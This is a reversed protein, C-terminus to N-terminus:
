DIPGVTTGPYYTGLITRFDQGARARGIAGAQCMGVGHGNGGGYLTLSEVGSAGVVADISFYTSYLLEGSPLRLAARVENGRLAWQGRDTEIAMTAVRRGPTVDNVTVARIAGVGAPGGPLSRLYRAVSERLQVGTFTRTWRFKPAGDCYFRDTGPIQDSVRQLYPEGGSRWVDQPEATSGGCTSHYPANVVHGDYLLVLGATADVAQNGVSTEASAGGYVQDQVTASMDYSRNTGALHMVAYSRATVAQAEVAAVDGLAATGIELPVVGRLYDDMRLRNVVLLAGDAVSILLEGRWRKGNFTITGRETAPRVVIPSDRLPVPRSDEHRASVVHGDSELLWSEHPQPAGLLTQGDAAYLAWEGDSTLRVQTARAALAIRVVRSSADRPGGARRPAAVDGNATRRAGASPRVPTRGACAIATAIAAVVAAALAGSRVANRAPTRWRPM